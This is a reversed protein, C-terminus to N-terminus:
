DRYCNGMSMGTISRGECTINRLGIKGHFYNGKYSGKGKGIPTILRFNNRNSQKIICALRGSNEWKYPWQEGRIYSCKRTLPSNNFIFIQLLIFTGLFFILPKYKKM